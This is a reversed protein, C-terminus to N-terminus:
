RRPPKFDKGGMDKVGSFLMWLGGALITLALGGLLGDMWPMTDM